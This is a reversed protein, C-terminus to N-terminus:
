RDHAWLCPKCPTDACGEARVLVNRETNWGCDPCTDSDFDENTVGVFRHVVCREPMTMRGRNTTITNGNVASVTEDDYTWHLRFRDGPKLRDWPTDEYTNV